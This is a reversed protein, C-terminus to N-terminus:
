RWRPVGLRPSPSAAWPWTSRRRNPWSMRRLTPWSTGVFEATVGMRDAMAEALEIGFGWYQGTAPDRFSLPRYDGTTGVLLKGRQVIREITPQTALSDEPRSCAVLTTTGALALFAILLWTKLRNFKM